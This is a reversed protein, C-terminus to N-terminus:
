SQTFLKIPGLPNSDTTEWRSATEIETRQRPPTPFFNTILVQIHSITKCPSICLTPPSVRLLSLEEPLGAEFTINVAV